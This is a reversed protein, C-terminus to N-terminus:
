PGRTETPAPMSAHDDLNCLPPAARADRPDVSGRAPMVGIDQLVGYSSARPPSIIRIKSADTTCRPPDAIQRSGVPLRASWGAPLEGNESAVYATLTRGQAALQTPM